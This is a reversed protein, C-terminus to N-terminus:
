LISSYLIEEFHEGNAALWVLAFVNDIVRQDM